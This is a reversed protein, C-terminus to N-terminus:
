KIVMRQINTTCNFDSDICVDIDGSFDGPLVATGELIITLTIGPEIPHHFYYNQFTEDGGLSDYQDVNAYPPTVQTITFGNLYNLSIDISSLELVDSGTNTISVQIQVEDGVNASIPANVKVEVNDPTQSGLWVLGGFGLLCVAAICIVIALCGGAIWLMTKNNSNNTNEM